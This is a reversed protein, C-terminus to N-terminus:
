SSVQIVIATINDTGGQENAREILHKVSEEPGSRQVINGIEEDGVFEWLGDTCLVLLDGEQVLASFTDIEVDGKEGLARTIMNRAPHERVQEKTLLGARMQEAVVSHDESVQKVEGHRIIYVRSDGVNAVYLTNGQLVAAVCTTGMGSGAALIAANAQHVAQQLAATIEESANQYYSKPVTEVAIKSAVEGRAHGGMGDAVVFLAGKKALIEADGPIFYAMSDENNERQRGVDTLQAVNLHFQTALTTNEKGDFTFSHIV